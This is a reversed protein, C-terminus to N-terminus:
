VKQFRLFGTATKIMYTGVPLASIDLVSSGAQVSATVSFPMARGSNDFIAIAEDDEMGSVTLLNTAPNPYAELAHLTNMTVSVTQLDKHTGDLDTQSLRYYSVGNLPTKDTFSYNSKQTTTGVGNVKAIDTWSKGDASRELTYFDNRLESATSWGLDVEKGSSSPLAFFNTLEVPLASVLQLQINDVLINCTGTTGSTFTLTQTHTTATFQFSEQTLSFATGNRTVTASLANNNIVVNIIQVTPGCTTRRSALFKLKYVAGPTFGNITQCLGAEQDVEAVSNTNSTGGYVGETNVEPNCGWSASGSSFTGNAITQGFAGQALFFFTLTYLTFKMM